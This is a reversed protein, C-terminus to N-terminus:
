ALTVWTKDPDFYITNALTTQYGMVRVVHNSSSPSTATMIGSGTAMYVISGTGYTYSSSAAFGRILLGNTTPSSGVALGLMGTSSGTSNANALSWTGSSSLFYLQGTTLTGAGFRVIEGNFAPSTPVAFTFSGSLIQTGTTTHVDTSTNGITVGTNTVRLEINSGTVVTLSGTIVTNGNVDLVANPSSTGIGVNGTSTIRIREAMATNAPSGPKTYFVLDASESATTNVLNQIQISARAIPNTAVNFAALVIGNTTDLGILKNGSSVAAYQIIGPTYASGNNTNFLNNNGTGTAQSGGGAVQDGAQLKSVGYVNGTRVQGQNASYVDMYMFAANATYTYVGVWETYAGGNVSNMLRWGSNAANTGQVPIVDARWRVDQSGATATTKWGNGQWVLPPSISQVGVTAASSNGLLVGNTDVQTVSNQNAYINHSGSQNFSGTLILSGSLSLNRATLTGTSPTVGITAATTNLLSKAGTTGSSVVVLAHAAGAATNTVFVDGTISGSLSGTISGSVNLSGSITVSGSLVTSGTVQLGNFSASDIYFTPM